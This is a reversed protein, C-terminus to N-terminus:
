SAQFNTVILGAFCSRMSSRVPDISTPLTWDLGAAQRALIRVESTGARGPYVFWLEFLEVREDDAVGDIDVTWAEAVDRVSRAVEPACRETQVQHAGDEAFFLARCVRGEAPLHESAAAPVFWDTISVQVEGQRAEFLGEAGEAEAAGATALLGWMIWAFFVKSM